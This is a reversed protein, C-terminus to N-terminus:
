TQPLAIYHRLENIANENLMDNLKNKYEATKKDKLVAKAKALMDIANEFLIQEGKLNIEESLKKIGNNDKNEVAKSLELLKEGCDEKVKAMVELFLKEIEKNEANKVTLLKYDLAANAKKILEPAFLRAVNYDSFTAAYIRYPNASVEAKIIKALESKAAIEQQEKYPLEHFKVTNAHNYDYTSQFSIYAKEWTQRTDGSFLPAVYIFISTVLAAGTGVIFLIIASRLSESVLMFEFALVGCLVGGLVTSGITKGVATLVPYDSPQKEIIKEIEERLEEQMNKLEKVKAKYNDYEVKLPDKTGAYAATAGFNSSLLAFSLALATMKILINNM